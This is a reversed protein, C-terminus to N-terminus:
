QKKKWLPLIADVLGYFTTFPVELNHLTKFEAYNCFNGHRNLLDRIYVIKHSFWRRYFVPKKNILINRNNWLIEDRFDAENQKLNKFDHWYVLISRYFSSLNESSLLKPDYNCKTLFFFNGYQQVM